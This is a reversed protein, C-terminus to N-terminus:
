QQDMAKLLMELAHNDLDGKAEAISITHMGLAKYLHLLGPTQRGIDDVHRDITKSDGRAIPGTLADVTGLNKINSLTGYILPYLVDVAKEEPIGAKEMLKFSMNALAVMYNSAVVASAHYLTKAETKILLFVAELDDVIQKAVEVAKEEGEVAAIIGKFRNEAMTDGAFSQLPHLSGIHAGSAKASSLLTSPQAGSPHFVVANNKFGSKAAIQECVDKISSDPVCIFVIDAKSSIAELCDSHEDSGAAQAAKEASEASRSAFMAPGYGARVLQVGLATGVKGCGIIAFSPKM